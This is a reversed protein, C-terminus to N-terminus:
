RIYAAGGHGHTATGECRRIGAIWFPLSFVLATAALVIGFESVFTIPSDGRQALPDLIHQIFVNHTAHLTAAPWVSESALRLWALPAAVALALVVFSITEWLPAGGANYGSFLIIPVHWAAWLLGIFVTSIAFGWAAALRPTLFGRWGIEEGLAQVYANLTGAVLVIGAAVLFGIVGSIGVAPAASVFAARMDPGAFAVLGFADALMYALLGYAVPLCVAIWHYRARGWIWGIEGLGGGGLKLALLASFGVSCMLLTVAERTFGSMIVFAQCAGTIPIFILFFIGVSRLTM